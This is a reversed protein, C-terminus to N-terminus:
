EFQLVGQIGPSEMGAPLHQWREVFARPVIREVGVGWAGRHLEEPALENLPIAVEINWATESQQSAVYYKPNWAAENLLSEHTWGRHDIEFTWGSRFDRNIDFTM